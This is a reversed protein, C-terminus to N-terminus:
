GAKEPRMYDGMGDLVKDPQLLPLVMYRMEHGGLRAYVIGRFTSFTTALLSSVLTRPVLFEGPADPDAFQQRGGRVLFHMEGVYRLLRVRKPRQEPEPASPRYFMRIDLRLTLLEEDEAFRVQLALKLSLPGIDDPELSSAPTHFSFVKDEIGFVSLQITSDAM